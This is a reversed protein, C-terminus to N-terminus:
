PCTGVTQLSPPHPIRVRAEPQAPYEMIRVRWLSSAIKPGYLSLDFAIRWKTTTSRPSPDLEADAALAELNRAIEHLRAPLEAPTSQRIGVSVAELYSSAEAVRTM